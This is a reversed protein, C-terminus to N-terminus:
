RARESARSTTSPAIAGLYARRQIDSAEALRTTPKHPNSPRRVPLPPLIPVHVSESPPTTPRSVARPASGAYYLAPLPVVGPVPAYSEDPAAELPPLPQVEAPQTEVAVAAPPPNLEYAPAARAVAVPNESPVVTAPPPVPQSVPALPAADAKAPFLAGLVSHPLGLHSLYLLDQASPASQPPSNQVYALLVSAPVNAQAMKVLEALDPSLDDPATEAAAATLPTSVEAAPAKAATERLGFDGLGGILFVATSGVAFFWASGPVAPTKMSMLDVSERAIYEIRGPKASTKHSPRRGPKRKSGARLNCVM